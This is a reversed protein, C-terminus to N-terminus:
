TFLRRVTLQNHSQRDVDPWPQLTSGFLEVRKRHLWENQPAASEWLGAHRLTCPAWLFVPGTIVVAVSRWLCECVCMLVSVFPFHICTGSDCWWGQREAVVAQAHSRIIDSQGGERVIYGTGWHKPAMKRLTFLITHVQLMNLCGNGFLVGARDVALSDATLWVCGWVDTVWVCLSIVAARLSSRGWSIGLQFHAM